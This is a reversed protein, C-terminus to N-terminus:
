DESWDRYKNASEHAELRELSKAIDESGRRLIAVLADEDSLDPFAYRLVAINEDLFAAEDSPLTFSYAKRAPNPM